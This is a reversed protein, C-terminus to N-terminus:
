EKNKLKYYRERAKRKIDEKHREYFTKSQNKRIAQGHETKFYAIKKKNLEEKHAQQYKKQHEKVKDKNRKQWDLMRQLQKFHKEEDSTLQIGSAVKDKYEQIKSM